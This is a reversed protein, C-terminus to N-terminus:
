KVYVEESYSDLLKLTYEYTLFFVGSSPFIKLMLPTLGKYFSRMGENRFMKIGCDIVGHYSAIEKKNAESQLGLAKM